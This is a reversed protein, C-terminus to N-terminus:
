CCLLRPGGLSQRQEIVRYQGHYHALTWQWLYQVSQAIVDLLTVASRQAGNKKKISVTYSQSM